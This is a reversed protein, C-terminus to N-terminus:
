TSVDMATLADYLRVQLAAKLGTTELDRHGLAERLQAVTLRAVDAARVGDDAETGQARESATAYEGGVCAINGELKEEQWAHALATLGSPLHWRM